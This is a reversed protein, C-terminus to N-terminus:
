YSYASSGTSPQFAYAPNDQSQPDTALAQADADALPKLADLVKEIREKRVRLQDFDKVIENLESSAEEYAFRYVDQKM